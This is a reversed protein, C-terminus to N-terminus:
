MGVMRLRSLVPFFFLCFTRAWPFGTLADVLFIHLRFWCTLRASRLRVFTAIHSGFLSHLSLKIFLLNRRVLCDVSLGVHEGVVLSVYTHLSRVCSSQLM